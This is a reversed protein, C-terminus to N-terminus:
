RMSVLFRSGLATQVKGIQSLDTVLIWFEWKRSPVTTGKPVELAVMVSGVSSGEVTVERPFLVWDNVWVWGYGDAYGSELDTAKMLELGFKRAEPFGNNINIFAEARAGPYYNGIYIKGSDILGIENPRVQMNSPQSPPMPPVPESQVPPIPQIGTCGVLLVMLAVLLCIGKNM